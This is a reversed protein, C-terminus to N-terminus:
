DLAAEALDQGCCAAGAGGRGDQSGRAAAPRLRRRRRHLGRGGRLDPLRRRARRLRAGAARRPRRADQRIARTATRHRLLLAPFAARHQDQAAGLRFQGGDRGADRLLRAAHGLDRRRRRHAGRPALGDERLALALAWATEADFRRLAPAAGALRHPRSRREDWTRPGRCRSSTTAPTSTISRAPSARPRPRVASLAGRRRRRRDDGDQALPSHDRQFNFM